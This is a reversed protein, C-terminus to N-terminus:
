ATVNLLLLLRMQQQLLTRAAHLYAQQLMQM